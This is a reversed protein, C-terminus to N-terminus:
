QFDRAAAPTKGGCIFDGQRAASREYPRIPRCSRQLAYISTTLTWAAFVLFVAVSGLAISRPSEPDGEAQHHSAGLEADSHWVADTMGAGLPGAPPAFPGSLAAQTASVM